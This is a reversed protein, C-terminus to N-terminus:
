PHYGMLDYLEVAGSKEASYWVVPEGSIASFFVPSEKIGRSKGRLIIEADTFDSM